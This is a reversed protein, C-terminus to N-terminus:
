WDMDDDYYTWDYELEQMDPEFNLPVATALLYERAEQEEKWLRYLKWGWMLVPYVIFVVFLVLCIKKNDAILEPFSDAVLLYVTIPLLHLRALIAIVTPLLSFAICAILIQQWLNPASM